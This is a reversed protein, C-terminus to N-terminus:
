PGTGEGGCERSGLTSPSRGPSYRRWRVDLQPRRSAHSAGTAVGSGGIGVAPTDLGGHYDGARGAIAEVAAEFSGLPELFAVLRDPACCNLLKRHLMTRDQDVVCISITKKHLDIGVFNM